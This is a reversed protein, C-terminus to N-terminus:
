EEGKISSSSEESITDDVVSSDLRKEWKIQGRSKSKVIELYEKTLIDTKM